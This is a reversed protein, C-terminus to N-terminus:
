NSLLFNVVDARCDDDFQQPRNRLITVCVSLSSPPNELPSDTIARWRDLPPLELLTNIFADIAGGEGAEVARRLEVLREDDLKREQIEKQRIASIVLANDLSEQLATSKEREDALQKEYKEREDALQGEYKEREGVLQRELINMQDSLSTNRSALLEGNEIVKSAIAEALQAILMNENKCFLHISELENISRLSWTEDDEEQLYTLSGSIETEMFLFGDRIQMVKLKENAGLLRWESQDDLLMINLQEDGDTCTFAIVGDTLNKLITSQAYLSAPFLIILLFTFTIPLKM